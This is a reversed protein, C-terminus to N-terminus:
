MKFCEQLMTAFCKISCYLEDSKDFTDADVIQITGVYRTERNVRNCGIAKGNLKEKCKDCRFTVDKM